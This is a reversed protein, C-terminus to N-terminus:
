ESDDESGLLGLDPSWVVGMWEAVDLSARAMQLMQERDEQSMMQWAVRMAYDRLQEESYTSM